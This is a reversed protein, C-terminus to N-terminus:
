RRLAVPIASMGSRREEWVVALKAVLDAAAAANASAGVRGPATAAAGSAVQTTRRPAAPGTVAARAVTHGNAAAAYSATDHPALNPLAAGGLAAAVAFAAPWQLPIRARRSRPLKPSLPLRPLTATIRRELELLEAPDPHGLARAKRCARLAPGSRRLDHLVAATGAWPLPATPDLAAARRYCHRALDLRRDRRALEALTSWLPVHGPDYTLGSRVATEADAYRGLASLALALQQWSAPSRPFHRVTREAFSLADATRGDRLCATVGAVLREFEAPVAAM